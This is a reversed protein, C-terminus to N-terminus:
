AEEPEPEPALNDAPAFVTQCTPCRVLATTGDPVALGSRCHPCILQVTAGGRPTLLPPRVRGQDADRGVDDDRDDAELGLRDRDFEAM